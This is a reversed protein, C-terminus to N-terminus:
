TELTPRPKMGEPGKLYLEAYAIDTIDIPRSQIQPRNPSLVNNERLTSIHREIDEFTCGTEIVKQQEILRDSRRLALPGSGTAWEKVLEEAYIRLRRRKEDIAGKLETIIGPGSQKDLM